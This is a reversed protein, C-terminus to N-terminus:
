KRLNRCGGVDAAELSRSEPGLLNLLLHDKDAGAPLALRCYRDCKGRTLFATDPAALESGGVPDPEGLHVGPMLLIYGAIRVPDLGAADFQVVLHHAFNIAVPPNGRSSCRILFPINM